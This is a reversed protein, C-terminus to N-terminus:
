YGDGQHGKNGQRAFGAGARNRPVRALAPGILLLVVVVGDYLQIASLPLLQRDQLAVTLWSHMVAYLSSLSLLFYLYTM